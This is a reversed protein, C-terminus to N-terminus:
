FILAVAHPNRLRARKRREMRKWKPPRSRIGGPMPSIHQAWVFEQLAVYVVDVDPDGLMAEYSGYAQPIDREQAYREANKASRSAAALLVSRSSERIAPILRENIRATSLLGWNFQEKSM